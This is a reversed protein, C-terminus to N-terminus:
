DHIIFAPRPVLKSAPEIKINLWTQSDKDMQKKKNDCRMSWKIVEIFSAAILEKYNDCNYTNVHM